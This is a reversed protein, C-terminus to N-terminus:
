CTMGCKPPGRRQEGYCQVVLGGVGKRPAVDRNLTLHAMWFFVERRALKMKFIQFAVAAMFIDVTLIKSCGPVAVAATGAMGGVRPVNDPEVVRGCLKGQRGSMGDDATSFAMLPGCFVASNQNRELSELGQAFAAVLIDMGSLKQGRSGRIALAAM